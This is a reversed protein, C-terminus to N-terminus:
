CIFEKQFNKLPIKSIKHSEYFFLDKGFLIRRNEGHVLHPAADLDDVNFGFSQFEELAAERIKLEFSEMFLLQLKDSILFEPALELKDPLIEIGPLRILFKQCATLSFSIFNAPHHLRERMVTFLIIQIEFKFFFVLIFDTDNM